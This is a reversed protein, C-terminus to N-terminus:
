RAQAQGPRPISLPQAAEAFLVEQRGRLALIAAQRESEGSVHVLRVTYVGASDPGNVINAPLSELLDEITEISAGRAFIVQIDDPNAARAVPRSLTQYGDVASAAGTYPHGSGPSQVQPIQTLGIAIAMVALPAAVLATQLRAATCTRALELVRNWALGAAACVSRRSHTASRAAIRSQLHEFGAHMSQDLPSENRFMDLTRSETALERRCTICGRIHENVLAKQRSGLSGNVYWPLLLHVEDHVSNRNSVRISM